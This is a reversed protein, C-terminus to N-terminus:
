RDASFIDLNAIDGSNNTVTLGTVAGKYFFVLTKVGNARPVLSIIQAGGNLKISINRDALIVLYDGTAVAIPADVTADAIQSQVRSTGLIKTDQLRNQVKIADAPINTTAGSYSLLEFLIDLNSM